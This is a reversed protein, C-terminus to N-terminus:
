VGRDGHVISVSECEIVSGTVIHEFIHLSDAAIVVTDYGNIDDSIGSFCFKRGDKVVEMAFEIKVKCSTIHGNM